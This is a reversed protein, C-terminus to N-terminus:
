SRCTSVWEKGVRREESRHPGAASVCRCWSTSRHSVFAPCDSSHLTASHRHIRPVLAFAAARRRAGVVLLRLLVGSRAVDALLGPRRLLREGTRLAGLQLLGLFGALRLGSLFAGRDLPIVPVLGSSGDPDPQREAPRSGRDRHTEFRALISLRSRFLTTYPFLTDTRTSRPPRRIM